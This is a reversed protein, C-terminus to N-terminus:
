DRRSLFEPGKELEYGSVDHLKEDVGSLQIIPNTEETRYTVTAMGSAVVSVSVFAPEKFREKFEMAQRYSIYSHNKIRAESNGHTWGSGM